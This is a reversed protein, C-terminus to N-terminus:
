PMPNGPPLGEVIERGRAAISPLIGPHTFLYFRDAKVGELTFRAVDAASLRGSQVAKRVRDEYPKALPNTAALSAPRNRAADAIGTSVFAPALVSVGLRSRAIGLDHLLCESITVVAHKSACYVGSGPVSVFGAVSATNVIHGAEGAALMRPVFSRIGYVVGMVNVGIVWEWDDLTAAWIPGSVGVGANNFLLHTAGFRDYTAEALAEVAEANSVDCAVCLVQAGRDGVQPLLAVTAELGRPDVDALVLRMGEGACLLALERGFGSAGGTIVAVKGGLEHM